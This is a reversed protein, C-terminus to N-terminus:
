INLNNVYNKALNLFKYKQEDSLNSYFNEIKDNLLNIKEEYYYDVHGKGYLDYIIKIPRIHFLYTM